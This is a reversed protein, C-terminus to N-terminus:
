KNPFLLYNVAGCKVKRQVSVGDDDDYSLTGVLDDKGDKVTLSLTEDYYSGPRSGSIELGSENQKISIKALDSKSFQLVNLSQAPKLFVIKLDEVQGKNVQAYIHVQTSESSDSCTIRYFDQAKLNEITKYSEAGAAFARTVTFMLIVGAFLKM